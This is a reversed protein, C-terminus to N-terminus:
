NAETLIEEAEGYAFAVACSVTIGERDVACMSFCRHLEPPVQGLVEAYANQISESILGIIENVQMKPTTIM